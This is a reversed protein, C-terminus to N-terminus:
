ITNAAGSKIFISLGLIFLISVCASLTLLFTCISDAEELVAKEEQGGITSSIVSLIGFSIKNLFLNIIIPLSIVAIAVIAIIGCSSKILSISSSLTRLADNISSGLLPVFSSIAFRATKISINDAGQSIVSKCSFVFMFISMVFVTVSTFVTRVIKSIGSLDVSSCMVKVCSFALSINVIPLMFQLLFNQILSIFLLMSSNTIVASSLNGSITQVTIMVPLFATSVNCLLTMYAATNKALTVCINFVALSLCLSSSLSFVNKLTDNTSNALANFIAFIILLSLIAGFSKLVTNIGSLLYEGALDLFAKEKFKEGLFGNFDGEFVDKGIFEQVSNPLSEKFESLDNKIENNLENYIESASIKPTLILIIIM